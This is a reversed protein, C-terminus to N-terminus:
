FDGLKQKLTFKELIYSSLFTPKFKRLKGVRTFKNKFEGDM